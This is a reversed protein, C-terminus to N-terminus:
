FLSCKESLRRLIKHRMAQARVSDNFEASGGDLIMGRYLKHRCNNLCRGCTEYDYERCHRLHRVEQKTGGFCRNSALGVAILLLQKDTPM